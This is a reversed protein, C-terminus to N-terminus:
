LSITPKPASTNEFVKLHPFTATAKKGDAQDITFSGATWVASDFGTPLSGCLAATSIGTVNNATGTGGGIANETYFYIFM